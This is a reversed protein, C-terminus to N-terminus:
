DDESEYDSIFDTKDAQSSAWESLERMFEIYEDNEMTCTMEKIVQKTRNMVVMTELVLLNVYPAVSTIITWGIRGALHSCYGVLGM